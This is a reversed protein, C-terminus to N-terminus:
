FSFFPADWKRPPSGIKKFGKLQAFGLRNAISKYRPKEIIGELQLPELFDRYNTKIFRIVKKVHQDTCDDFLILGGLELLEAGFFFDIFVDEFLHSGDVYILGFRKEEKLLAPLRMKSFDEYFRFAKPEAVEHAKVVGASKWDSDQFPDIATHSWDDGAHAENLCSLLTAASAGYALGIELTHRPKQQLTLHRLILLNNVSSAGTVTRTSGERDVTKGTEIMEKLPACFSLKEFTSKKM